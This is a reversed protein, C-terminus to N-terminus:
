HTSVVEAVESTRPWRWAHWAILVALAVELVSLFVFYAWGEGIVSLAITVAYVAALVLNTWRNLAPRLVLSLFVMLSPIAVYISTALLFAQNVEFGGLEGARLDEIVDARFGGFIDGYAFLFMMSAWLASLKLRVPVKVDELIRQSAATSGM